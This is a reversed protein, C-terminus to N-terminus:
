NSYLLAVKLSQTAWAAPLPALSWDTSFDACFRVEVQTGM